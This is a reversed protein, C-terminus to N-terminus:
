NINVTLNTVLCGNEFVTIMHTNGNFKSPDLKYITFSMFEQDITKSQLVGEINMMGKSHMEPTECFSTAVAAALLLKIM